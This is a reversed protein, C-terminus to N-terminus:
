EWNSRMQRTTYTVKLELVSSVFFHNIITEVDGSFDTDVDYVGNLQSALTEFHQDNDVCNVFLVTGIVIRDM